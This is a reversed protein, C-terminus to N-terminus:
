DWKKVAAVGSMLQSGSSFTSSLCTTLRCGWSNIFLGLLLTTSWHHHAYYFHDVVFAKTSLRWEPLQSCSNVQKLQGSSILSKHPQSKHSIQTKNPVSTQAFDLISNWWQLIFISEYFTGKRVVMKVLTDMGKHPQTASCKHHFYYKCLGSQVVLDASSVTSGACVSVWLCHSIFWLQGALDTRLVYGPELRLWASTFWHWVHSLTNRM